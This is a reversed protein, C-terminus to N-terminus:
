RHKGTGVWDANVQETNVISVLVFHSIHEFNVIITLKPYIECRTVTNGNNVKFTYNSTPYVKQTNNADGNLWWTELHRALDKAM